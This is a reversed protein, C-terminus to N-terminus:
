FDNGRVVRGTPGKPNAAGEAIGGEIQMTRGEPLRGGQRAGKLKGAAVENERGAKVAEATASAMYITISNM